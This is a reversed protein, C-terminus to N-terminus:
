QCTENSFIFIFSKRMQYIKLRKQLNEIALTHYRNEKKITSKDGINWLSLDNQIFVQSIIESLKM